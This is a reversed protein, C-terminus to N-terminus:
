SEDTSKHLLRRIGENYPDGDAKWKNPEVM